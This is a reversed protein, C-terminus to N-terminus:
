SHSLEANLAPIHPRVEFRRGLMGTHNNEESLQSSLYAPEGVLSGARTRNGEGFLVQCHRATDCKKKEHPASMCTQKALFFQFGLVFRLGGPEAPSASFNSLGLLISRAEIIDAVLVSGSAQSKSKPDRYPGKSPGAVRLAEPKAPPYKSSRRLGAANGARCSAAAAGADGIREM